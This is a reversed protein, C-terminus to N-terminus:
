KSDYPNPLSMEETSRPQDERSNPLSMEETSKPQEATTPAPKVPAPANPDRTNELDKQIQADFSDENFSDSCCSGCCGANRNKGCCGGAGFAQTNSWSGLASFFVICCGGCLFSCAEGAGDSM